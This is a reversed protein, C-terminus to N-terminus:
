VSRAELSIDVDDADDYICTLKGLLASRGHTGGIICSEFAETLATRM